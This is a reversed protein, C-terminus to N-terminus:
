TSGKQPPLPLDGELFRDRAECWQCPDYQPDPGTNTHWGSGDCEPCEISQLFARTVQVCDSRPALREILSAAEQCRVSLSRLMEDVVEDGTDGIYHQARLRRVMEEVEDPLAPPTPLVEKAWKDDARAVVAKVLDIVPTDDDNYAGLVERIALALSTGYDTM